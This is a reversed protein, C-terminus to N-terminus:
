SGSERRAPQRLGLAVVILGVASLLLGTVLGPPRFSLRVRHRGEPVEVARFAFNAHVIRTERGDITATWGKMLSESCYLLGARPADVDIEVENPDFRVVRPIIPPGASPAFSPARELIVVGPRATALAELAAAAPMVTYDSTVFYRPATPRRMVELLDDRYLSPYGRQELKEILISQSSGVVFFEINAADLVGEPPLQSAFRLFTSVGPMFYRRYLEFMRSSTFLTMSDLTPQRFVEQMNPMYIGTGLPQVRGGTAAADIREIYAPPHRWVNWRPQRPYAANTVGEIALVAVLAALAPTRARGHRIALFVAGVSGAAFIALLRFDAIWRWGEPQTDVGLRSAYERVVVLAAVTALAAAAVQWRRSRGSAIAEVGLAALIAVAYAAVIGFYVAYHITRLGPLYAIWQVIALGFVKTLAFTGVAVAAIKLPRSRPDAPALIGVIALVLPVVGTYYLHIGFAGLPNDLYVRAGGQVVPSLLQILQIPRLVVLAADAYYSSVQPSESVVLFSPVYVVAVIAIAALAGGGFWAVSEVRRGRPAGAGAILAYAVCTAFVQLVIAPFSALAVFAAAAAFEAARRRGPADFLRATALLPLSFFATPQGLGGAVTQIMAGSFAFAIGGTLAATQGLGRGRLLGYTLFASTVILCLMYVNRIISGNGLLAVVFSPPFLLAPVLSAFLPTGGGTYPDWFPFTGRRLSRHLFEAAPESQTTVMAPDRYNPAGVLNRRTWAEQPLFGPAYNGPLYRPDLPNLNESVALSKGSFVVNGFAALVLAVILALAPLGERVVRRLMERQRIRVCM